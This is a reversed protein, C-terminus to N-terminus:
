FSKLTVSLELVENALEFSAGKFSPPGFKPMYDNAFGFPEKPIRFLNADLEGNNNLDHFISLAFKGYPINDFTVVISKENKIPYEIPYSPVELFEDSETFLGVMMTGNEQEIGDITVIIKGSKRSQSWLSFAPMILVLFFLAIRKMNNNKLIM